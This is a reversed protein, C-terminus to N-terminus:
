KGAAPPQDAPQLFAPWPTHPDFRIYALGPVGAHLDAGPM